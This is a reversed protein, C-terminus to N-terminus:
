PIIGSVELVPTTGYKVKPALPHQSSVDQGYWYVKETLSTRVVLRTECFFDRADEPRFDDTAHWDWIEVSIPLHHDTTGESPVSINARTQGWLDKPGFNDTPATYSFNECDAGPSCAVCTTEYGVINDGAGLIDLQATVRFAPDFGATPKETGPKFSGANGQATAAAPVVLSFTFVLLGRYCRGHTM